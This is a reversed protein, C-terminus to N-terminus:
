TFEGLRQIWLETFRDFFIKHKVNSWRKTVVPKALKNLSPHANYNYNLCPRAFNWQVFEFGFSEKRECKEPEVMRLVEWRILKQASGVGGYWAFRELWESKKGLEVQHTMKKMMNRIDMVIVDM